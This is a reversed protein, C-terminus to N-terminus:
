PSHSESGWQFSHIETMTHFEVLPVQNLLELTSLPTILWLASCGCSHGNRGEVKMHVSRMKLTPTSELNREKPVSASSFGKVFVIYWLSWTGHEFFFIEVLFFFAVLFIDRSWALAPLTRVPKLFAKSPYTSSNLKFPNGLGQGSMELCPQGNKGTLPPKATLLILCHTFCCQFFSRPSLIFYSLSQERRCM